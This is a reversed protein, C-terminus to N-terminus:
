HSEKWPLCGPLESVWGPEVCVNGRQRKPFISNDDGVSIPGWALSLHVWLINHDSRWNQSRLILDEDQDNKQMTAHCLGKLLIVKGKGVLELYKERCYRYIATNKESTKGENRAQISRSRLGPKGAAHDLRIVWHADTKQITDGPCDPMNLGM